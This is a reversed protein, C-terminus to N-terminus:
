SSLHFKTYRLKINLKANPSFCHHQYPQASAYDARGIQQECAVFDPKRTILGLSYFDFKGCNQEDWDNDCDRQGDCVSAQPICQCNGCSFEILAPCSCETKYCDVASFCFHFCTIPSLQINLITMQYTSSCLQINYIM